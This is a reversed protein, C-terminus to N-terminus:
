RTRGQPDRFHVHPTIANSATAGWMWVLLIM